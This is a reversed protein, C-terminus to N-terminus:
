QGPPASGGDSPDVPTPSAGADEKPAIVPVALLHLGRRDEDNGGADAANVDPNGLLLLAYNSAAAYYTPPVDRPSSLKQIRALSQELVKTGAGADSGAAALSVRFGLTEYIAIDNSDYSLPSPVNPEATGFLKPNRTVLTHASAPAAEQGFTIVLDRGARAGQLPQSLNVVQAPLIGPGPRNAGTLTIEQVQLNGKAATWGTGCEEVTRTTGAPAAACGRVVLLHVGTKLDVDVTGIEIALLSLTASAKLEACTPGKAAGGFAPYHARLLPEEFLQIAGPKGRLPGLRVASGVEVGVVNAEPMVQSDPQPRRDAENGFCLRFPQAKAAHVLIVANDVPVLDKSAEGASPSDFGGRGSDASSADSPDREGVSSLEASSFSCAYTLGSLALLASFFGLTTRTM